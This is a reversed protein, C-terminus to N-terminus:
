KLMLKNEERHSPIPIEFKAKSYGNSKHKSIFLIGSGVEHSVSDGLSVFSIIKNAKITDDKILITAERNKSKDIRVYLVLEAPNKKIDILEGSIYIKKQQSSSFAIITILLKFWSM